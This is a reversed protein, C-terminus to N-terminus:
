DDVVYSFVKFTGAMEFTSGYLRIRQEAGDAARVVLATDRHVQAAPYRTTEGAYEVRVLALARGGHQALLRTLSTESKQRLDGWVFSFPLNREPRSAPLDPWVFAKFETESLALRELLERDRREFGGLVAEALARASPRTHALPTPAVGGGCALAFLAALAATVAVRLM